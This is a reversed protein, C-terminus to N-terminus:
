CIQGVPVRHHLVPSDDSSQLLLLRLHFTQFVDAHAGVRFPLPSGADRRAESDVERYIRGLGLYLRGGLVFYERIPGTVLHGDQM